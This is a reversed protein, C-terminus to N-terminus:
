TRFSTRKQFYESVTVKVEDHPKIYGHDPEILIFDPLCADCLKFAIEMSTPNSIKLKRIKIKNLSSRVILNNAILQIQELNDM